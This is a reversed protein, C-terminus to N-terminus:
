HIKFKMTLTIEKIKGGVMYEKESVTEGGWKAAEERLDDIIQQLTKGKSASPTKIATTIMAM